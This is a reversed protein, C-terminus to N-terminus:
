YPKNIYEKSNYMKAGLGDIITVDYQVCTDYEMLDEAFRDGGKAFIIKDVSKDKKLQTFLQELTIIITLDTDVSLITKTVSRLGQIIKMRYREDQFTPMARKMEAQRDNNVIVWLEDGLDRALELFEVHGPHIPNAYVSAVVITRKKQKPTNNEM